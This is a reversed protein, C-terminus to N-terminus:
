ADAYEVTWGKPVGNIGVVDWTAESNKVFTGTESVKYIWGDLCMSASIDTALMKIYNLSTCNYFMSQYCFESLKLVSLVPANVLNTCGYFMRAYCQITLTTAPLKPASTLSTCNEFMQYYCQPATTTAPLEPATTLSTCNEFMSDYCYQRLKTAPLEPAIVLSSCGNFMEKYCGKTLMTTPLILNGASVIMRCYNFLGCFQYDVIETKGIFDAGYVMSMINGAVNCTGRQIYFKGIGAFETPTLGSARFFITDGAFATIPSNSTISSWTSNDYSYECTNDFSITLDQLANIHLPLSSYDAKISYEVQADTLVVNPLVFESGVLLANKDAESNFKRLYKM